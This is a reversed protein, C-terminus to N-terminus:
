KRRIFKYNLNKCKVMENMQFNNKYLKIYSLLKIKKSHSALMMKRLFDM